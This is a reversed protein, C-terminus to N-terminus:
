DVALKINNIWAGSKTDIAKLQTKQEDFYWVLAQEEYPLLLVQECYPVPPRHFGMAPKRKFSQSWILEGTVDRLSLQMTGLDKRNHRDFPPELGKSHACYFSKGNPAVAAMLATSELQKHWIEKGEKYLSYDTGKLGDPSLPSVNLTYKQLNSQYARPQIITDAYAVELIPLFLLFCFVKFAIQM